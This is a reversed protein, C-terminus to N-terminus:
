EALRAALLPGDLVDARPLDLGFASEALTLARLEPQEVDLGHEYPSRGDSLLPGAEQARRAARSGWAERM